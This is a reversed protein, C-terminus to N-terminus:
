EGLVEGRAVCRKGEYLEFIAGPHLLTEPADPSLFSVDVIMADNTDAPSAWELVLSWAVDPWNGANEYFRAVTSYKPGAPPAVRGGEAEKFWLVRAKKM